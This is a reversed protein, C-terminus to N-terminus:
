SCVAPATQNSSHAEMTQRLVDLASRVAHAVSPYEEIRSEDFTRGGLANPLAADIVIGGMTRLTELLAAHAHVSGPSANLLVTPKQEFEGSGVLWDLANKMAGAVGHAYEPSSIFVGDCSRLQARFDLVADPARGHDLDDVDPNFLPLHGLGEYIVVEVGTPALLKAARVLASNKSVNRLSGSIGLIRM